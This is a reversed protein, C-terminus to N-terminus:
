KNYNKLQQKKARQMADAVEPPMYNEDHKALVEKAIFVNDKIVGTAIIGQGERFLDPLIGTHTVLITDLTDTIKFKSTLGQRVLSNNVVMGGIRFSKNLPIKGQKVDNPSYFYLINENFAKLGLFIILASGLLLVVVLLLRKQRKTM